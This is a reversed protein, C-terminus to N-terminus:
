LSSTSPLFVFWLAFFHSTGAALLDGPRFLFINLRIHSVMLFALVLFSFFSAGFFWSDTMPSHMRSFSELTFTLM